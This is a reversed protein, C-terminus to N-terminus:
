STEQDNPSMLVRHIEPLIFRFYKRKLTSLVNTFYEADFPVDIHIICNSKKCYVIFLAKKIGFLGLGLQIQTFYGYTHNRKLTIHGDTSVNLYPLESILESPPLLRGKKPCKVEILIYEGDGSRLIADPSFALYPCKPNILLGVENMLTFNEMESLSFNKLFIEIATYENQIGFIMDKTPEVTKFFITEIKKRWDEPQTKRYTFIPHAVSGTIRVKREDQWLPDNRQFCSDNQIEIAEELKVNVCCNYFNELENQEDNEFHITDTGYLDTLDTGNGELLIKLDNVLLRVSYRLSSVDAVTGRGRKQKVHASQSFAANLLQHCKLKTKALAGGTPIEGVRIKSKKITATNKGIHCYEKVPIPQYLEKITEQNWSCRVDTCSVTTLSEINDLRDLYMLLACVHKCKGSSGGTCSCTGQIETTIQNFKVMIQHPPSFVGSSQICTAKFTMVNADNGDGIRYVNKLYKGTNLIAKGESFPRIAGEFYTTIYPMCIGVEIIEIDCDGMKLLVLITNYNLLKNGLDM